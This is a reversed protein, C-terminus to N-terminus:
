IKGTPLQPKKMDEETLLSDEDILDDDADMQVKLISKPAKKITFSSGIKWAPKKGKVQLCVFFLSVVIYFRHAYM